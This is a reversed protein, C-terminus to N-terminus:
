SALAVGTRAAPGRFVRYAVLLQRIGATRRAVRKVEHMLRGLLNAEAHLGGAAYAPSLGVHLVTLLDAAERVYIVLGLPRLSGARAQTAFLCQVGPHGAVTVRLFGAEESIEPCGWREIVELLAERVRSQHENFFLLDELAARQNAPIRSSFLFRGSSGSDVIGGNLAIANM